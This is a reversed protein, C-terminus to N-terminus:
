GFMEEEEIVAEKTEGGRSILGDDMLQKRYYQFILWSDQKTKLHGFAVLNKMMLQLEEELQYPSEYRSLREIIIRCQKPYSDKFKEEDAMLSKIKNFNIEYHDKSRTQCVSLKIVRDGIRQMFKWLEHTFAETGLNPPIADVEELKPGKAYKPWRWTAINYLERWFRELTHHDFRKQFDLPSKYVATAFTTRALQQRAAELTPYLRLASTRPYFVVIWEDEVLPIDETSM